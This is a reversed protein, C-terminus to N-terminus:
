HLTLIGKESDLPIEVTLMMSVVKQMRKYAAIESRSRGCGGM